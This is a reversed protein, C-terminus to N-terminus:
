KKLSRIESLIDKLLNIIIVSTGLIWILLCIVGLSTAILTRRILEIDAGIGSTTLVWSMLMMLPVLMLGLMVLEINWRKINYLFSFKDKFKIKM